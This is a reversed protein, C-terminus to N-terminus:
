AKRMTKPGTVIGDGWMVFVNWTEQGAPSMPPHDYISLRVFVSEQRHNGTMEM